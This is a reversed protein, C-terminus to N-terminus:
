ISFKSVLELFGLKGLAEIRYSKHFTHCSKQHQSYPPAAVTKNIHLKPRCNTSRLTYELEHPSFVDAVEFDHDEIAIQDDRTYRIHFPCFQTKRHYSPWRNLPHFPVLDVLTIHHCTQSHNRITSPTHTHVFFGPPPYCVNPSSPTLPNPLSKSPGPKYILTM